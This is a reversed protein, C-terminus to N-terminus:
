FGQLAHVCDGATDPVLLDSVLRVCSAATESQLLRWYVPQQRSTAHSQTLVSLSLLLLLMDGDSLSKWRDLTRARATTLGSVSNPRLLLEFKCKQVDHRRRDMEAPPWWTPLAFMTRLVARANADDDVVAAAAATVPVLQLPGIAVDRQGRTSEVLLWARRATTAQRDDRPATRLCVVAECATTVRLEDRRM